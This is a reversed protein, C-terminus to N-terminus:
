ANTHGFSASHSRLTEIFGSPDSHWIRKEEKFNSFIDHRKSVIHSKMNLAM